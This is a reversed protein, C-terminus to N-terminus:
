WCDAVIVIRFDRRRKLVSALDALHDAADLGHGSHFVSVEGSAPLRVGLITALQKAQDGAVTVTRGGVKKAAETM